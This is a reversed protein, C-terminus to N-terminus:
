RSELMTRITKVYAHAAKVIERELFEATSAGGWYPYQDAEVAEILRLLEKTMEM